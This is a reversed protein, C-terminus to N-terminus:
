LDTCIQISTCSSSFISIGVIEIETDTTDDMVDIGESSQSRQATSDTPSSESFGKRICANKDLRSSLEDTVVTLHKGNDETDKFFICPLNNIRKSIM